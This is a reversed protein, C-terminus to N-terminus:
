RNRRRRSYVFYVGAGAALVVMIAYPAITTIIGNPPNITKDNTYTVTVTDPSDEAVKYTYKLSSEKATGAKGDANDSITTTYGAAATETVTAEEGVKLKFTESKGDTLNFTANGGYVNTGKFAFKQNTDGMNGTVKKEVTLKKSKVHICFDYTAKDVADHDDCNRESHEKKTTAIGNMGRVVETVDKDGVKVTVNYAVDSAPTENKDGAM